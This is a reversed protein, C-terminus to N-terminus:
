YFLSNNSNLHFVKTYAKFVESNILLYISFSTFANASEINFISIMGTVIIAIIITNVITLLKSFTSDDAYSGDISIGFNISLILILTLLIIFVIFKGLNNIFSRKLINATKLIKRQINNTNSSFTLNDDILDYTWKQKILPKKPLEYKKSVVPIIKSEM